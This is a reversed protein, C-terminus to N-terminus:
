KHHCAVNVFSSQESQRPIHISDDRLAGHKVCTCSRCRVNFIQEECRNTAPDTATQFLDLVSHAHSKKPASSAASLAKFHGCRIVLYVTPKRTNATSCLFQMSRYHLGTRWKEADDHPPVYCYVDVKLAVALGLVALMDGPGSFLAMVNSPSVTVRRQVSTRGEGFALYCRVM